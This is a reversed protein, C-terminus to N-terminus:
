VEAPNLVKQGRLLRYIHLDVVNIKLGPFRERNTLIFARPVLCYNGLGSRLPPMGPTIADSRSVMLVARCKKCDPEHNNRVVDHVNENVRQCQPVELPQM